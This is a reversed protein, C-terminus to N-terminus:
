TERSRARGPGHGHDRPTRSRAQPTSFGWFKSPWAAACGYEGEPETRLRGITSGTGGSCPRSALRTRRASRRARSADKGKSSVRGGCRRGRFGALSRQPAFNRNPDLTVAKPRTVRSGIKCKQSVPPSPPIRPFTIRQIRLVIVHLPTQNGNHSEM